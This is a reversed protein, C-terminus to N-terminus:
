LRRPTDKEVCWEEIRDGTDLYRTPRRRASKMPVRPVGRADQLKFLWQGDGFALWGQDQMTRGESVAGVDGDPAGSGSWARWGYECVFRGLCHLKWVSCSGVSTMGCLKRGSVRVDERGCHHRGGDDYKVGCHGKSGCPGVGSATGPSHCEVVVGGGYDFAEDNNGFVVGEMPEDSGADDAMGEGEMDNGLDANVANKCM